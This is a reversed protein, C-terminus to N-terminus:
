LEGPLREFLDLIDRATSGMSFYLCICIQKENGALIREATSAAEMGFRYFDNLFDEAGYVEFNLIASMKAYDLALAKERSIQREAWVCSLDVGIDGLTDVSVVPIPFFEVAFDDGHRVSHNNYFGSRAAFGRAAAEARIELSKTWLPKYIENL